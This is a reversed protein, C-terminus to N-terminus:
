PEVIRFGNQELSANLIYNMGKSLNLIRPKYVEIKDNKQPSVYMHYKMKCARTSTIGRETFESTLIHYGVIWNTKDLAENGYKMFMAKANNIDKQYDTKEQTPQFRGKVTITITDCNSENLAGYYMVTGDGLTTSYENTLLKSNM